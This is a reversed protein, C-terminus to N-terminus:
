IITPPTTVGANTGTSKENQIQKLIYGAVGIVPTAWAVFEVAGWKEVNIALMHIAGWFFIIMAIGSEIRKKMFFSPENSYMKVLEKIGWRLNTTGILWKGM